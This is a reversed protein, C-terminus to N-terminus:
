RWDRDHDHEHERREEMDHHEGHERERHRIERPWHSRPLDYWPGNRSQSYSWNDNHYYYYYGNQYYYPDVGLEVVPPLPSVTVEGYGPPGPSVVCATLSFAAFLAILILNKM